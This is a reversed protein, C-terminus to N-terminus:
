KDAISLLEVEFVLTANPGILKGPGNAGYALEPPIVFKYKSGVSMLQVGETWGKIVGNLPFTAPQGRKYSSDFETGDMLTGKYNVTVKDTASPKAGTGETLVEYMLGTDTTKVGDGKAYEARFKEGAVINEKGAALRKKNADDARKKFFAQKAAMAEEAKILLPANDLQGNIAAFLAERNIDAGLTKLSNGIDMGVAYSVKDMDSTLALATSKKDEAAAEQTVKAASKGPDTPKDCGSTLMLAISAAGLLLYRKKM